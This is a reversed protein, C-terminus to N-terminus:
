PYRLDGVKRFLAEEAADRLGALKDVVTPELTLGPYHPVPRGALHRLWRRGRFVSRKIRYAESQSAVMEESTAASLALVERRVLEEVLREGAPTRAVVDSVGQAVEPDETFRELWADGVSVDACEALADPCLRCRPPTYAGMVRDFYDPYPRRRGAGSRTVLRMEGPWGPGRYSVTALDAPDLGARRAAIETGRPEGTWGCFIGLALVVRERLQASREQALRLGQLHCPLGVLVYHGPTHRVGALAENM